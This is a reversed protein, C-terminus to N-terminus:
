RELKRKYSDCFLPINIALDKCFGKMLDPYPLLFNRFYVAMAYIDGNAINRSDITHDAQDIFTSLNAETLGSRLLYLCLEHWTEDANGSISDVKKSFYKAANYIQDEM